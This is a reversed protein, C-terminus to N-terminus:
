ISFNILGSFIQDYFTMLPAFVDGGRSVIPGLIKKKYKKDQDPTYCLYAM